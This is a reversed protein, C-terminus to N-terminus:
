IKRLLFYLHPLCKEININGKLKLIQRAFGDTEKGVKPAYDVRISITKSLLNYKNIITLLAEKISIGM